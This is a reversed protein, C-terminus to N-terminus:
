FLDVFQVKLRPKDALRVHRIDLNMIILLIKIFKIINLITQRISFRGCIGLSLISIRDNM